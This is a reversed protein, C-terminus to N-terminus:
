LNKRISKISTVFDSYGGFLYMWQVLWTAQESSASDFNHYYSLSIMNSLNPMYNGSFTYTKNNQSNDKSVGNVQTEGGYYWALGASAWFNQNLSQSYYAEVGYMEDQSLNSDGLYEDNDSYASVNM